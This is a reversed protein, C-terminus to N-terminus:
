RVTEAVRLEEEAWHRAERTMIFTGSWDGSVEWRGTIEDGDPAITGQYLVPTGVRHTADYHKVFHVSTGERRGDLFARAEEGGYGPHRSPSRETTEGTVVGGSERLVAGFPNAPLSRPYNYIGSWTGTVDLPDTM